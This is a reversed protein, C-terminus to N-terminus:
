QGPDVPIRQDFAQAAAAVPVHNREFGCLGQGTDDGAQCFGVIEDDAKVGAIDGGPCVVQGGRKGGAAERRARKEEHRERRDARGAASSAAKDERRRKTTAEKAAKATVGAMRKAGVLPRGDLAAAFLRQNITLIPRSVASSKSVFVQVIRIREGYSAREAERLEKELRLRRRQGTRRKLRRTWQATALAARGPAIALASGSAPHGATSEAAGM